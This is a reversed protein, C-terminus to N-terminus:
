IELRLNFPLLIPRALQENTDDSKSDADQKQKDPKEPWDKEFPLTPTALLVRQVPTVLLRPFSM